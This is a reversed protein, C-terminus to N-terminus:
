KEYKTLDFRRSFILVLFTVGTLVFLLFRIGLIEIVTGSFIVPFMSAVTVLFWFSGFVRGRLEHPTSEQLFTNSPITIGVFSAGILMIAFFGLYSRLPSSILSIVFTIFFFMAVATQLSTVIIAKKRIGRGLLKPIVIAAIISGLSAPIVVFISSSNLPIVLIDKAISPVSIIIVQVIVQVGILLVLPALVRKREKIFKYGEIIKEVFSVVTNEFNLTTNDIKAMHPLMLTSVFALFVLFSCVYLSLTFPLFNNLLGALSFGLIIAGQQTLFFLGNGFPLHNKKIVSPLTASEAPVYFQNLLSYILVVGYVLFVSFQHSLSYVFITM